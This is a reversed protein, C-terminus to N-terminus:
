ATGRWCEQVGSGEGPFLQFGLCWPRLVAYGAEEVDVGDDPCEGVVGEQDDELEDERAFLDVAGDQARAAPVM